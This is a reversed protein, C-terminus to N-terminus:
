MDTGCMASLVRQDRVKFYTEQKAAWAPMERGGEREEEEEGESEGNEDMGRDGLRGEKGGRRERGEEGEMEEDEDGPRSDLEEALDDRRQYCWVSHRYRVDRTLIAYTYSIHGSAMDTGSSASCAYISICFLVNNTGSTACCMRVSIRGYAIVTVSMAYCRRISVRDYSIETGSMASCMRRVESLVVAEEGAEGGEGEGEGEEGARGLASTVGYALDTSSMAYCTRLRMGGYAIDTGSMAYCFRLCIAVQVPGVWCHGPGATYPAPEAPLLMRDGRAETHYLLLMPREGARLVPTRTAGYVQETGFTGYHKCLITAVYALETGSMGYAKRLITAVYASMGYSNCLITAGYALESGSM